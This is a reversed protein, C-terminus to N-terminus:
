IKVQTGAVTGEKLIKVRRKSPHTVERMRNSEKKRRQPAILSHADKSKIDAGGAVTLHGKPGDVKELTTRVGM